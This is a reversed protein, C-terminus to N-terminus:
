YPRMTRSSVSAPPKIVGSPAREQDQAPLGRICACPASTPYSILRNGHRHGHCLAGVPSTKHYCTKLWAFGLLQPASSAAVTGLWGLPRASPPISCPPSGGSPFILTRATTQHSPSATSGEGALSPSQNRSAPANPDQPHKANGSQDAAGSGTGATGALYRPARHRAPSLPWRDPAPSFETRM